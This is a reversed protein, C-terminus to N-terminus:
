KGSPQTAEDVVIVEVPIQLRELRLGLQEELAARLPADGNRGAANWRVVYDYTGNLETRDLVPASDSSTGPLVRNSLFDAFQRMSSKGRVMFRNGERSQIPEDKGSSENLKSGKNSVFLV